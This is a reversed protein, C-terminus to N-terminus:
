DEIYGQQRVPKGYIARTTHQYWKIKDIAREMSKPRSMADHQGAKQDCCGQCFRWESQSYVHEEPLDRFVKIALPLLRDAWHEPTETINQHAGVFQIQLTEQLDVFNFRTELKRILNLFFCRDIEASLPPTSIM